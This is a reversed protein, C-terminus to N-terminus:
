NFDPWRAAELQTRITERTLASAKQYDAYLTGVAARLTAILPEISAKLLEEWVGREGSAGPLLENVAKCFDSLGSVADELKSDLDSLSAPKGNESLVIILGAIVADTDAKAKSYSM